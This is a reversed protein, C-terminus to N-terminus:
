SICKTQPRNMPTRRCREKWATVASEIRVLSQQIAEMESASQGHRKQLCRLTSPETLARGSVSESACCCRKNHRCM